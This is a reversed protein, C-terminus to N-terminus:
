IAHGNQLPSSKEEPVILIDRIIVMHLLEIRFLNKKNEIEYRMCSFGQCRIHFSDKLRGLLEYFCYICDNM